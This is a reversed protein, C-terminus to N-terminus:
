KGQSQKDVEEYVTNSAQKIVEMLKNSDAGETMICLIYPHKPYYVVGCNHLFKSGGQNYAREGFKAAVEVSDPVGEFLGKEENSQSLIKLVQESHEKSLYSANFLMRYITAFSKTSIQVNSSGQGEFNMGIDKYIKDFDVKGKLNDGLLLLSINDSYILMREVLEEVTYTKGLELNQEPAINQIAEDDIIHDYTFSTNLDISGNEAAKFISVAIPLKFLSAPTFTRTEDVGYWPGNNLDRFYIAVNEAESQKLADNRIQLIKDQFPILEVTAANVSECELLPNIFEYGGSRVQTCSVEGVAKDVAKHQLNNVIFLAIPRTVLFVIALVLFIKWRRELVKNRKELEQITAM